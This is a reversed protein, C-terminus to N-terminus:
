NISGEAEENLFEAAPIQVSYIASPTLDLLGETLCSVEWRARRGVALLWPSGRQKERRRCCEGPLRVSRVLVLENVEGHRWKLWALKPKDGDEM